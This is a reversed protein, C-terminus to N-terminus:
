IPWPNKDQRSKCSRTPNSDSRCCAQWHCHRGIGQELIDALHRYSASAPSCPGAHGATPWPAIPRSISPERERSSPHSHQLPLDIASNAPEAGGAGALIGMHKQHMLRPEQPLLPIRRMDTIAAAAPIPQHLPIAAPPPEIENKAAEEPQCHRLTDLAPAGFLSAAGATATGSGPTLAM